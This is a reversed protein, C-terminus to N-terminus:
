EDAIAGAARRIVDGYGPEIGADSAAFASPTDFGVAAADSGAVPEGDVDGRRAVYVIVLVSRAEFRRFVTGLLDLDRPLGRLGTEEALERAAAARPPEDVELYGAPVSWTGAAPPAGREILLVEDGDVVLV